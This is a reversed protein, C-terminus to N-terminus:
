QFDDELGGRVIGPEANVLRIRRRYSGYPHMTTETPVEVPAEGTQAAADTIDTM